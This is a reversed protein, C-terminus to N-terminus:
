QYNLVNRDRKACCSIIIPKSIFLAISLLQTRNQMHRTWSGKRFVSRIRTELIHCVYRQESIKQQSIHTRVTTEKWYVTFEPAYTGTSRISITLALRYTYKRLYRYEYPVM